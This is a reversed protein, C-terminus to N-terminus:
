DRQPPVRDLKQAIALLGANSSSQRTRSGFRDMWVLAAYLPIGLGRLIPRDTLVECLDDAWRGCPGIPNRIQLVEFGARKLNLRMQENDYGDRVHGPEEIHFHPRILNPVHLILFGRPKLAHYLAEIAAQDDQIHELVDLCIVLDFEELTSLSLLDGERFRLTQLGLARATANARSVKAAELEQGTVRALPYRHAMFFSYEAKGSGADLIQARAMKLGHEAELYQIAQLLSRLRLRAGAHPNGILRLTWRRLGSPELLAQERGFSVM